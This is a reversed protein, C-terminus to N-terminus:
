IIVFRPPHGRVTIKVGSLIGKKAPVYKGLFEVLPETPNHSNRGLTLSTQSSFLFSTSVEHSEIYLERFSTELGLTGSLKTLFSSKFSINSLM